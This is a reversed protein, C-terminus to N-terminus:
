LLSKLNLTDIKNRFKNEIEIVDKNNYFKHIEPNRQSFEIQNELIFNIKDTDLFDKGEISVLLNKLVHNLGQTLEQYTLVSDALPLNKNIFKDWFDLKEELFKNWVRKSSKIKSYHVQHDFWSQISLYPHRVQLVYNINKLKPLDLNFDHNKMLNKMKICPFTKCCSYYECYVKKNEFYPLLVKRILFTHGSRPYTIFLTKNM